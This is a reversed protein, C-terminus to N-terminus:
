KNATTTSGYYILTSATPQFYEFVVKFLEYSEFGTYFKFHTTYKFRDITFRIDAM